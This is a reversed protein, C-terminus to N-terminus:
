ARRPILGDLGYRRRYFVILPLSFLIPVLLLSPSATLHGQNLHAAPIGEGRLFDKLRQDSQPTLVYWTGLQASWGNVRDKYHFYAAVEDSGPYYDFVNTRFVPEDGDFSYDKELRLEFPISGLNRPRQLHESEFAYGPFSDTNETGSLVVPAPLGPGSIVISEYGRGKGAAPSGIVLAALVTLFAAYALKRTM